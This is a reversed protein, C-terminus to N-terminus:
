KGQEKKRSFIKNVINIIIMGTIGIILGLAFMEFSVSGNVCDKFNIM